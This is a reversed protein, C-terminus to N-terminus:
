KINKISYKILESLSNVYNGFENDYWGFIKAHTVPLEIKGAVGSEFLMSNPLSLFGTKTHTEYGEIVVSARKGKFDSSVNQISSFELLKHNSNESASKYIDNLYENNIVPNGSTDLSTKFTLNLTVLSVTNSPIRVSDAMFGIKKIEPLVYELAKAAGTSTIIINNFVSRNRRLDVSGSKPLSDLITQNNTAAHITSMSATIIKSTEINDLLPKMMHSLATTTCSASSIIKHKDFDIDTHNIGFVTMTTDIPFKEKTKFPASCIVLEAGSDLHGRISGKPESSNKSPDLFVGTCDVVLKVKYKKWNIDKPNRDTVLIRILKDNIKFSFEDIKELNVTKGSYGYLFRDLFGYTSDTMIFNIFADISNGTKRGINVVFEEFEENMLNNWLVLKGIRGMGNIGLKNM